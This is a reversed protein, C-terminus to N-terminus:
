SVTMHNKECKVNLARVAPLDSRAQLASSASTSGEAAVLAGLQDPPAQQEQGAAGEAGYHEGGGQHGAENGHADVYAVHQGQLQVPVPAAAAAYSARQEAPASLMVHTQEEEQLDSRSAGAATTAASALPLGSQLRLRDLPLRLIAALIHAFSAAAEHHCHQRESQQGAQGLEMDATMTSTLPPPLELQPQHLKITPLLFICLFPLLLRHMPPWAFSLQASKSQAGSTLSIMPNQPQKQQQSGRLFWRPLSYINWTQVLASYRDPRVDAPKVRAEACGDRAARGDTTRRM